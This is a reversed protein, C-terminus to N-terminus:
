VNWDAGLTVAKAGDEPAAPVCTVIEPVFKPDVCPVPDTKGPVLRPVATLQLLVCITAVTDVAQVPPGRHFMHVHWLVDRFLLAIIEPVGQYSHM